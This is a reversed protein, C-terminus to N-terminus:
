NTIHKCSLLCDSDSVFKLFYLRYFMEKVGFDYYSEYSMALFIFM